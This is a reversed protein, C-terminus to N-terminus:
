AHAHEKALQSVIAARLCASRTTAARDAAEDIRAVLSPQAAFALVESFPQHKNSKAMRRRRSNM